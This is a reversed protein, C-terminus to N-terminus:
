RAGGIRLGGPWNIRGALWFGIVLGIILLLTM